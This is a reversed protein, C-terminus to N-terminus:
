ASVLFAPGSASASELFIEDDQSSMLLGSFTHSMNKSIMFHSSNWLIEMYICVHIYIYIM